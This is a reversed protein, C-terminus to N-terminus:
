EEEEDGELLDEDEEYEEDPEMDEIDNDEDEEYEEDEGEDDEESVEKTGLLADRVALFLLVFGIITLMSGSAIGATGAGASPDDTAFGFIVGLPGTFLLLGLGVWFFLKNQVLPPEMDVVKGGEEEIEKRYKEEDRQQKMYVFILFFAILTVVIGVIGVM